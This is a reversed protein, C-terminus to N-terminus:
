NSRRWLSIVFGIVMVFCGIWLLNIYPFVIAKLTVYDPATKHIAIKILKRDPIIETVTYNLGLDSIVSPIYNVKNERIYYIPEAVYTKNTDGSLVVIKAGIAIDGDKYQYYIHQPSPNIGDFFIKGWKTQATDGVAILITDMKEPDIIDDVTRDPVSTIHNYIDKTLYHRTDPNAILGMKPNIQANPKLVFSEVLKNKASDHKEYLIKYYTNPSALSDGLYTLTYEDMRVKSGKFLLVNDGVNNKDGGRDEVSFDSNNSIVRKTGASVLIGLMILGFGIHAVSAGSLRMNRKLTNLIYYINATITFICAFLLVINQWKFIHWFWVFGFSLIVSIVFPFLLKKLFQYRDTNKYKLYQISATLLAILIAVWIQFRNYHGIVDVPPALKTGLVKNIVERSTDFGIQFASVSLILAGVFMWFERSYTNEEKKIEPISKWNYIILVIFLILYTLLYILLQGSMGLDTFSHVSSDGLIGSRTLFTSYLVLVFTVAILVFTIRLSYGTSKYVLLTHLGAILTIWPVLSANEVPDWAWFGGFTLAEYAWAGGMLIGTGLISGSFLMWPFVPKIWTTYNKKLLAAIVFCFPITTSAFGLFLIPPHIVMWYNQLLPNLGNGDEIMSLYNPMKFIPAEGMYDRLLLFPSSGIHVGLIDIGLIMTALFFQITCFIAMTGSEWERAKFLLITGLVSHWVAWLLFSGEQGEWFCALLYYIPMKTSSHQWVYQYEFLHNFICYYLVLLIGAIAIVHVCYFIRGLKLWSKKLIDDNSFFSFFYAISSCSSAVLFFIVFLYGFQGPLLHENEFFGAEM